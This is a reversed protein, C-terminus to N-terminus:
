LLDLWSQKFFSMHDQFLMLTLLLDQIKIKWHVTGKLNINVSQVFASAYRQANIRVTYIHCSRSRSHSSVLPARSNWQHVIVELGRVCVCVCSNGRDQWILEHRVANQAEPTRCLSYWIHFTSFDRLCATDCLCLSWWLTDVSQSSVCVCVCVCVCVRRRLTHWKLYVGMPFLLSHWWESLWSTQTHTHTHTHKAGTPEPTASSTPFYSCLRGGKSDSQSNWVSYAGLM